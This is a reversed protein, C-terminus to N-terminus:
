VNNSQDLFQQHLKLVQPIVMTKDDNIIVFDAMKKKENDDMQREMISELDKVTRHSDRLLVRTIRVDKPAYVAIVRDLEKYSGSEFLLAAEKITYAKDEHNKLWNHYDIHVIPHVLSNLIDLKDKDNFVKKALYERNLENENKYSQEGFAEKIQFILKKDYNMLWKARKDADYVPIKLISFIKTIVSKGAGIGGTIGIKLNNKQM